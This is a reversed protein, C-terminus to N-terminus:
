DNEKMAELLKLTAEQLSDATLFPFHHGSLIEKAAEKNTGEFRAVLPINLGIESVASIIGDAVLNCRLFGGLINIIIGEVKPNTMMIKLSQAIKDEDVGGKINLYCAAKAQKQKLYDHVALALGDGNVILGINGDEFERYKFGCKAAKLVNESAEYDDHMQVVDPHRFLANDDFSIKADLAVFSDDKLLGVPNIELMTADLELFAHYLNQVFIKLKALSTQPLDLFSLIQQIDQSTIKQNLDFNLRLISEPKKQALDLINDTLNAVLLTICAQIRNIVFSLYFSRVSSTFEEVYIKSVLKGQPQTQDTVLTHGLMQSAILPIDKLKKVVEVGSVNQAEKELFHGKARAGAQIQAKLVWPGKDSIKQAVSLAENQTYAIRGKPTKIKFQKLLKKAQYEHINM